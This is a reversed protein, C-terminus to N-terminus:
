GELNRAAEITATLEAAREPEAPGEGRVVLVFEINYGVPSYRQSSVRYRKYARAVVETHGRRCCAAVLDELPVLGDTSYSILIFRSQLTFLLKELAPLADARYNYASRRASRWDKRIASKDGQGTIWPSVPPHDWLAITNLVHYNAGYPHQNYPPDLYAIDCTPVFERLNAALAQADLATVPNEQGNDWTLPPTLQLRSLIRYHATGTAGGWGRHFGKFVGSTNSVYCAGYLLSALLYDREEDAIQGRDEWAAIQERIADIRGGNWRTYFLRERAPDFAHDDRPCLHRAVYGDAPPLGNLHAFAADAGGLELFGPPQNSGIYAHNISRAYPEWDNALVRFGLQKALRSVVGSGAFYDVFTGSSVGTHEIAQRILPLLKRKNGLYPILQHYLYADTRVAAHRRGQWVM